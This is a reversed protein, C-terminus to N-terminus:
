ARRLAVLTLDDESQRGAQFARADDRVAAVLEAASGASASALRAELRAIGYHEGDAASAAELLGDTLALVRDGSDLAATRTTWSTDPLAPHIVTGTADIREFGGRGRVVYLPPHGANAIELAGSGGDFRACLATMHRDPPILRSSVAIRGVLAAPGEGATVGAHFASKIMGTLMAAAAGHGAVDAVLLTSREGRTALDYFDGCLEERPEYLFAVDGGPLAVANAPLLSQQFVRAALLERELRTVYRRNEDALARAALCRQVLALMVDRHFPKSVFFFANERIARTLRADTDTTSGTMLIVAMDPRAAKLRAMLEFGDMQPMRIDVVALDFAERSAHELARAGSLASTVDYPGRLIRETAHLMGADDDVVLLRARGM